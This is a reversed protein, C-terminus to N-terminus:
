PSPRTSRLPFRIESESIIHVVNDRIECATISDAQKKFEKAAQHTQLFITSGAPLSVIRQTIHIGPWLKDAQLFNTIAQQASRSQASGNIINVLSRPKIGIAQALDGVSVGKDAM